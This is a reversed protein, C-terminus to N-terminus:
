FRHFPFRGPFGPLEHEGAAQLPMAEPLALRASDSLLRLEGLGGALKEMRFVFNVEPGSLSEEGRTAAGGLYVRGFHAVMRFAPRGAEQVPRLAHLVAVVSAGPAGAPWYALFGDGLYKNIVGGGGEVVERCTHFWRGFLVALEDPTLSQNLRTSGIIDTVLLWTQVTRIDMLTPQATEVANSVTGPDAPQRFVLEFPGVTIRDLDRLRVPHSVRRGNVGTGNSSGLDVLWFEAEGQAHILAHRRSVRSDPLTVDNQTARGLACNGRVPVVEGGPRGLWAGSEVFETRM